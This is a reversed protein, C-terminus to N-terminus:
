VQQNDPKKAVLVVDGCESIRSAGRRVMEPIRGLHRRLKKRVAAGFRDGILRNVSGGSIVTQPTEIELVDFGSKEVIARLTGAPPDELSSKL